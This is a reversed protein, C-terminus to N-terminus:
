QFNREKSTSNKNRMLWSKGRTRLPFCCFYEFFISLDKSIERKKVRVKGGKETLQRSVYALIEVEVISCGDVFFIYMFRAWKISCHIKLTDFFKSTLAEILSTAEVHAVDDIISLAENCNQFTGFSNSVIKCRFVFLQSFWQCCYFLLFVKILNLEKRFYFNKNNSISTILLLFSQFNSVVQFCQLTYKFHPFSYLKSFELLKHPKFYMLVKEWAEISHHSSVLFNSPHFVFFFVSIFTEHQVSSFKLNHSVHADYIKVVSM